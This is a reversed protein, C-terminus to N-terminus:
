DNVFGKVNYDETRFQWKSRKNKYKCKYNKVFTYMNTKFLMSNIHKRGHPLFQTIGQKWLDTAINM